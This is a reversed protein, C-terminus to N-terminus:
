DWVDSVEWPRLIVRYPPKPRVLHAKPALKILGTTRRGLEILKRAGGMWKWGQLVLLSIQYDADKSDTGEM